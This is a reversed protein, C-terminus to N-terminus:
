NPWQFSIFITMLNSKNLSWMWAPLTCSCHFTQLWLNSLDLEIRNTRDHESLIFHMWCNYRHAYLGSPSKRDCWLNYIIRWGKLPWRLEVLKVGQVFVYFQAENGQNLRHYLPCVSYEPLSLRSSLFRIVLVEKQPLHLQKVWSFLKFYRVTEQCLGIVYTGLRGWWQTISWRGRHLQFACGLM